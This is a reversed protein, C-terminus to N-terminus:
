YMTVGKNVRFEAGNLAQSSHEALGHRKTKSSVFPLAPGWVAVAHGTRRQRGAIRLRSELPRGGAANWLEWQVALSNVSGSKCIGNVKQVLHSKCAIKGVIHQLCGANM